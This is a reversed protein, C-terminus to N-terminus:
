KKRPKKVLKELYAFNKDDEESNWEQLNQETLKLFNKDINEIKRLTVANGKIEFTVYDGAQIALKERVEKPLSTQYKSTVKQLSKM